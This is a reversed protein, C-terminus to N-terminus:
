DKLIKDEFTKIIELLERRCPEKKIINVFNEDMSLRQLKIDIIAQEIKNAPLTLFIVKTDIRDISEFDKTEELFGIIIM